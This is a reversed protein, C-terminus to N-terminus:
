GTIFLFSFSMGEKVCIFIKPFFFSSPKFSLSGVLRLFITAPRGLFGLITFM